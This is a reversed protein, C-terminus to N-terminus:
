VEIFPSVGAPFPFFSLFCSDLSFFSLFIFRHTIEEHQMLRTYPVSVLSPISHCQHPIGDTHRLSDQSAKGGAAAAAAVLEEVECGSLCPPLQLCPAMPLVFTGRRAICTLHEVTRLLNIFCSLFIVTPSFNTCQLRAIHTQKSFRLSSWAVVAGPFEIWAAVSNCYTLHCRYQSLRFRM